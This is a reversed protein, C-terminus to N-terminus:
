QYKRFRYRRTYIFDIHFRANGTLMCFVFPSVYINFIITSTIRTATTSMPIIRPHLRPKTPITALGTLNAAESPIEKPKAFAKEEAIM